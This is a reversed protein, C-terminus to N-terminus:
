ASVKAHVTLESVAINHTGQGSIFDLRHRIARCTFDSVFYPTPESWVPDDDPDDDTTQAYLTVDCDNIVGGDFADWGDILTLRSDILDGTDFSRAVIDAEFRRTAVSGLDM